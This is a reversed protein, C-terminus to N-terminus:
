RSNSIDSKSKFANTSVSFFINQRENFVVNKRFYRLRRDTGLEEKGHFFLLRWQIDHTRTGKENLFIFAKQAM